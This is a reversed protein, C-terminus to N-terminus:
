IKEFYDFLRKKGKNTKKTLIEIHKTGYLFLHSYYLSMKIPNPSYVFNTTATSKGGTIYLGGASSGTGTGGNITVLGGTGSGSGGTITIAGGAGSTTGGTGGTITVSGFSFGHTTRSGNNFNTQKFENVDKITKSNLLLLVDDPMLECYGYSNNIKTYFYFDKKAKYLKGIELKM